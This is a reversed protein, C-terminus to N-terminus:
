IGRTLTEWARVIPRLKPPLHDEDGATYETVAGYSSLQFVPADVAVQGANFYSIGEFHRFSNRNLLNLFPQVQKASLRKIVQPKGMTPAIRRSTLLYGTAGDSRLEIANYFPTNGAIMASQFIVDDGSTLVTREVFRPVPLNSRKPLSATTNLAIQSGSEDVHYIWFRNNPGSMMVKFGFIGIEICATDPKELGLCGNWTRAEAGVLKIQNLPVQYRKQIDLQIKRLTQRPINRATIQSNAQALDVRDPMANAMPSGAVIAGMLLGALLTAQIRIM